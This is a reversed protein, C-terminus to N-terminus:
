AEENHYPNKRIENKQWSQVFGALGFLLLSTGLVTDLWGYSTTTKTVTSLSGDTSITQTTDQFEFGTTIVMIGLIFVLFNGMINSAIGYHKAFHGYTMFSLALAIIIIAHLYFM